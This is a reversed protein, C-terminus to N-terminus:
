RFFFIKFIEASPMFLLRPDLISVSQNGLCAGFTCAEIPDQPLSRWSWIEVQFTNKIVLFINIIFFRVSKRLVTSAPTSGRRFLFKVSFSIYQLLESPKRAGYENSKLNRLPEKHSANAFMGWGWNGALCITMHFNCIIDLSQDNANRSFMFPILYDCSRLVFRAVQPSHMGSETPWIM